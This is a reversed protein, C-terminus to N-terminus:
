IMGRTHSIRKQVRNKEGHGGRGYVHVVGM